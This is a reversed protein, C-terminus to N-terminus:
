IEFCLRCHHCFDVSGVQARPIYVGDVALLWLECGPLELELSMYGAAHVLRLRKAEGPRFDAMLPNLQGNTTYYNVGHKPDGLWQELTSGSGDALMIQNLRFM